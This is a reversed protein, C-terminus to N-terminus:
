GYKPSRWTDRFDPHGSWIEALIEPLRVTFPHPVDQDDRTVRWIALLQRMAVIEGHELEPEATNPANAEKEALRAEVFAVVEDM